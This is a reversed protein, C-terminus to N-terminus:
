SAQEAAQAWNPNTQAVEVLSTTAGNDSAIKKTLGAIAAGAGQAVIAIDKNGAKALQQVLGQFLSICPPPNRNSFLM